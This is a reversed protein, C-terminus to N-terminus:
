TAIEAGGAQEEQPMAATAAVDEAHGARNQTPVRSVAETTQVVEEAQGGRFELHASGVREPVTADSATEVRAAESAAQGQNELALATASASSDDVAAVGPATGPEVHPVGINDEQGTQRVPSSEESTPDAAETSGASSSPHPQQGSQAAPLGAAVTAGGTAEMSADNSTLQEVAGEVHVTGLEEASVQASERYVTPLQGLSAVDVPQESVGTGVERSESARGAVMSADDPVETEGLASGSIAGPIGSSTAADDRPASAEWADQVPRLSSTALVKETPRMSEEHVEGLRHLTNDNNAIGAQHQSAALVESSSSPDAGVGEELGALMPEFDGQAADVDAAAASSRARDPGRTSGSVSAFQVGSSSALEVSELHPTGTADVQRAPLSSASTGSTTVDSAAGSDWGVLGPMDRHGAAGLPSTGATPFAAGDPPSGSHQTSASPQAQLNAQSVGESKEVGAFAEVHIVGLEEAGADGGKHRMAAQEDVPGGVAVAATDGDVGALEVSPEATGGSSMRGLVAGAIVDSAQSTRSFDTANYKNLVPRSLSQSATPTAIGADGTSTQLEEHVVGASVQRSLSVFGESSGGPRSNSSMPSRGVEARDAGAFQAVEATFESQVSSKSTSEMMVKGVADEQRAVEPVYRRRRVGLASTDAEQEAGERAPVSAQSPLLGSSKLEDAEAHVAAETERTEQRWDGTSLEPAQTASKSEHEDGKWSDLENQVETFPATRRKTDAMTDLREEEDALASVDMGRGSQESLSDSDRQNGNPPVRSGEDLYVNNYYGSMSCFGLILLMNKAAFSSAQRGAQSMAM